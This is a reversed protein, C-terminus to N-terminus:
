FATGFLDGDQWDENEDPDPLHRHHIRIVRALAQGLEPGIAGFVDIVEDEFPEEDGRFLVIVALAEEDAECPLAVMHSGELWAADEGLWDRLGDDTTLHVLGEADVVKPAMVDALHQLLLDAADRSCDYNVYGALSFEDMSSPLFIAANTPGAQQMTFELTRRIIQELDLEDATLQRFAASAVDPAVPTPTPMCVPTAAPNDPDFAEFDAATPAIDDADGIPEITDPTVPPAADAPTSQNEAVQHLQTALEQYADVLDHCLVDVQRSVDLRADNLKHCLKRLRTVRDAHRQDASQKTIADRLRDAFEAPDQPKVIFDTAGARIAAVAADISPKHTVLVTHTTRRDRKLQQAFDLGANDPLDSDIVALDVAGTELLEAAAAPSAAAIIETRNPDPAASAVLAHLARDPDVVLVRYPGSPQTPDPKTAPQTM